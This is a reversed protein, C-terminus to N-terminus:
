RSEITVGGDPSRIVRIPFTAELSSLWGDVNQEFVVGTVRLGAVHPDTILIRRDSYRALDAVIVELPENMYQLRGERWGAVSTPDVATIEAPAGSPEVSLLQGARLQSTLPESPTPSPHTSGSRDPLPHTAVRVVGEAVAVVVAGRTRRVDFATGVATVTMRGARVIFPRTRDKAVHFFTEGRELTVTRSHKLLTAVLSTDGSASLVSGDPLTISRTEGVQTHVTIRAGGQLLVSLAPWYLVALVSLGAAVLVSAPYRTSRRGRPVGAASNRARWATINETGLYDDRAVEADTPWSAPISTSLRWFSEIHEFAKRNAANEALWQQWEAIREGSVNDSRLELFWEAARRLLPDNELRAQLASDM